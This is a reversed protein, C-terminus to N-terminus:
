MYTGSSTIKTSFAWLKFSTVREIQEGDSTVLTDPCPTDKFNIWMEEIPKPLNTVMKNIDFWAQVSDFVVQTKSSESLCVAEYLTCDDAYKCVGISDRLDQPIADELGNVLVSFLSPSIVSGQHVGAPCSTIKSFAGPLKVQQTSNSLISCIWEWFGLCINTLAIKALM